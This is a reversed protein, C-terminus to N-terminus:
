ASAAKLAALVRDNRFPIRRIRVGTADYIANGIAALMPKLSAEGAGYPPLDPRDPNPDGNVLVIDIREPIDAHRLTQYSFWDRSTVKETDFRVEERLARSLGHLTCCEVTHRLTEPNVVFGCDHACVLRKAWVHGTQRNVEVEAIQAVVTQGRFAYAVGRGTLIDGKSMPNPSPRSDWGYKEAAAKLVAISRARRFGGDVHTGAKIMKIRFELPDAKAAAAVEDIFSEAAFTPQPGNPDRLNGTRLPTEWVSPLSVVEGVMKRNPIAYMDSPMAASGAAPKARRSGMLQAILVTDPENYGVHNYDCSKAHFDYAVLSGDSGLAGRMKVLFAPGKTDWATEEERMWQMRVPRGIERAIWAAEFAADEAASRGFGQPGMMWIVRVSDHPMGLFAAVGRRMSYSKMDNTYVTMQGNSPDALAHAGAFATHGQFPIQYEAEIIKEAGAFAADPNGIVMPGSVPARMAPNGAAPPRSPPVHIGSNGAAPRSSRNRLEADGEIGPRSAPTPESEGAGGHTSASTPMAVPTANRMYNFLEESAPFPSTSPKEWTTKLQRAAHIAQEERECVVAVYNGKSVVKIFGPLSRVSSEDIGTLKACAFPPKVNRAHVMGPLKVDVAWKLSGDVKAPIDDRQISQGAYKLEPNSKTKAKGTVSYINNGTLTVNFKKGAILEGYTVRKSDDGKLTIVADSVALQDVPAGLHESGMELLVRRAEAAVRRMPWSDREIATSGGSGVQDVTIDTSGMICTTKDFAIDLEDSMLQRFCTGTGQGPDTKGVYFTATNNEHIVIWSDVQHFDPDHYPGGVGGGQADGEEVATAGFVGLSVALLGASKLFGRRHMVLADEIQKPIGQSLRM